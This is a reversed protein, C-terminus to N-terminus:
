KGGVFFVHVQAAIEDITLKKMININNIGISSDKLDDEKQKKSPTYGKNKLEILLQLFDNGQFKTEERHKVLKAVFNMVFDNVNATVSKFNFISLAHLVNPILFSFIDIVHQKKSPKSFNASIKRFVNNPDNFTDSDISFIVSVINHTTYKAFLDTFNFVSKGKSYNDVMFSQLSKGCDRMIPFMGKLKGSSFTPSLKFRLSRWKEGGINFLHTSIPDRDEDVFRPRDTFSNFNRVLIDQVVEPDNVFLIPKYTFYCGIYKNHKFKEYLDIFCNSFSKRFLFLDSINGFLFKPDDMQKFGHRTWYGFYYTNLM